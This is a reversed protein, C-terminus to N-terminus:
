GIVELTPWSRFPGSVVNGRDDHDGMFEDSWIISDRPNPLSSDLTTDWYPIAVSPDILRLAFEFRFNKLHEM